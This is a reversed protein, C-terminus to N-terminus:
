PSNGWVANRLPVVTEYVRYRYRRWDNPTGPNSDPTGDLNTMVFAGAAWSPAVTTVAQKEYQQSRALLAVRIARVTRFDAPAASQWTDVINDADSDLGYEAQLDIIGDAVETWDNMGDPTNQGAADHQDSYHLDDTSVLTRDNVIRWVNRRPQPGLNFINGASLAVALGAAPNYRATVATNDPDNYNGSAHTITLGDAHTNLTTEVLGCAGAQAAVLLDGRQISSPDNLRKTTASSASYTTSDSTLASNGFLVTITDPSGGAGDTIQVPVLPFTFNNGPRLRDYATVTCGMAGANGFGYGANRLERELSYLAISGSIQADSGSAATRKRENWNLLMQFMVLIGLLGIIMGIMVEVLSFGQAARRGPLSLREPM